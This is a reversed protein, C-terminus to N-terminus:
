FGSFDASLGVIHSLYTAGGIEDLDGKERMFDTLSLLFENRGNSHRADKISKLIKRHKPDWFHELRIDKLLQIGAEHDFIAFGLIKGELNESM